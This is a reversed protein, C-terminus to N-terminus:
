NAQLLSIGIECHLCKKQQCFQHYLEIAGQSEFATRLPMQSVKWKDTISNKEPKLLTLWELAKKYFQEESRYESYSVLLPVVTNILINEVSERGLGAIKESSEQGFKYHTQWYASQKVQLMSIVEEVTEAFLFRSFFSEERFILMALQAIRITPFNAPRTPSFKWMAALHTISIQYKKSLFKYEKWLNKAYTDTETEHLLGSTGFLLAEISLLNDRHKQLVKLPIAKALLLMPESNIKFGLNQALLQYTTEEWNKESKEFLEKITSKKRELRNKLATQLMSVKITQKVKSLQAQCPIEAATEILNFYQEVVLPSTRKCLALTPLLMGNERFITKDHEWVVHLVVNNYTKDQQHSHKEWDSSKVHIEINGFWEVDNIKIKADLFDAGSYQNPIGVSFIELKEGSETTLNAKNFQQYQWLYKIFSEKM